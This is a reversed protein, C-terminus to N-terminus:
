DARCDLVLRGQQEGDVFRRMATRAEALPFPGDVVPLIKSSAFLDAMETLGRNAKLALIKMSLGRRRGTWRGLLLHQLLRAPSGGVTVYRGNDELTRAYAGPSRTTKVDLILDYKSGGRTFDQRRFDIVHDFGASELMALKSGSDVGTVECDYLKAIQLAIPGVGGGAGNILLKEGSRLRGCDHLAQWALTAAHPIAAAQEFSLNAPMPELANEDACTFEAYTGFGCGHLDGYVADGPKFREVGAGVSEVTGAVDCGPVRVNPKLWGHIARIYLPSGMVLAVDWDNVSTAHVRVLVEREEPKPRDVERLELADLAGYGTLVLAKM